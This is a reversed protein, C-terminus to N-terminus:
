GLLASRWALFQCTDIKWTMAKVRGPNFGAHDTNSGALNPSPHEVRTPSSPHTYISLSSLPPPPPSSLLFSLSPFYCKSINIFCQLM